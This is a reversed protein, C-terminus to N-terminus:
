GKFFPYNDIYQRYAEMKEVAMTAAVGTEFRSVWSASCGLYQAIQQLRIGKKKRKLFYADKQEQTM